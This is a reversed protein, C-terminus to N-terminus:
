RSHLRNRYRIARDVGPHLRLHAGAPTRPLLAPLDRQRASFAPGLHLLHQVEHRQGIIRRCSRSLTENARSCARDPARDAGCVIEGTEPDLPPLGSVFIMNGARTVPSGPPSGWRELYSSIPEVRLAERKM